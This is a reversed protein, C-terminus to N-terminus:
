VEIEEELAKWPGNIGDPRMYFISSYKMEDVEFAAKIDTHHVRNEERPWETGDLVNIHVEEISIVREAIAAALDSDFFGERRHMTRLLSIARRRLQPQRCKVAILYTPSVIEMDLMFIRPNRAENLRACLGEALGLAQEFGPLFTDCVSEELSMGKTLYIYAILRHLRLMQIAATNEQSTPLKATVTDLKVSWSRLAQQLDALRTQDHLTFAREYRRGRTDDMFRMIINMIHIMSDRAAKLSSFEHPVAQSLSLPYSWSAPKFGFLASLLEIRFLSPLIDHGISKRSGVLDGTPDESIQELATKMGQNVHMFATDIDGRLAEICVFLVCVLMVVDIPSSTESRRTLCEIAKNYQVMAFSDNRWNANHKKLSRYSGSAAGAKSTMRESLTDLAVVAHRVAENASSMQLVLQMWFESDFFSSLIPASYNCFHDFARHEFLSTVTQYPPQKALAIKPGAQKSPDAYGDCKRGTSICRKCNPKTEDCKVHRIRCEDKTLGYM